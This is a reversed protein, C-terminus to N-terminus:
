ARKSEAVKAPIVVRAELDIDRPKLNSVEGPRLGTEALLIFAIKAEPNEIHRVVARIGEPSLPKEKDHLIKLAKPVPQRNKSPTTFSNYLRLFKRHEKVRVVKLFLKLARAIHFAKDISEEAKEMIYNDLKSVDSVFQNNRLAVSLYYLHDQVTKRRRDRRLYEEFKKINEETVRYKRKYERLDVYRM